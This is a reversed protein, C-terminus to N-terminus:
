SLSPCNGTVSGSHLTFSETCKMGAPPRPQPAAPSPIGHEKHGWTDPIVSIVTGPLIERRTSCIRVTLDRSQPWRGSCFSPFSGHPASALARAHLALHCHCPSTGLCGHRLKGLQAWLCGQPAAPLVWLSGSSGGGEPPCLRTCSQYFLVGEPSSDEQGPLKKCLWSSPHLPAALHLM